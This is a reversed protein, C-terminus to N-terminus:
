GQLITEHWYFYVKKKALKKKNNIKMWVFSIRRSAAMLGAEYTKRAGSPYEV